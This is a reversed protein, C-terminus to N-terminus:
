AFFIGCGYGEPGGDLLYKKYERRLYTDEPLVSPDGTYDMDYLRWVDKYEGQERYGSAVIDFDAAFRKINSANNLIELIAPSFLWTTCCFAVPSNTFKDAFFSKAWAYSRACEEHLLPTGTRPIHVNIVPDGIHLTKGDKKYEHKSPIIEFQLRGLAFRELKFFGPFWFCVFSGEVGKVLECERLKYKLDLMSSRYIDENINSNRYYERLKKSLCIYTLLGVTYSNEETVTAIKEYKENALAFSISFNEDYATIIENFLAAAEENNQISDYTKNLVTRSKEPYDFEELFYNLYNKM